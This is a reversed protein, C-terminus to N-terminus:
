EVESQSNIFKRIDIIKGTNIGGDLLVGYEYGFVSNGKYGLLGKMFPKALVEEISNGHITSIIKVGCNMANEIAKYDKYSIEDCILINPSMVKIAIEMAIKKPYLSFIDSSAGLDNQAIGELTASLENREDIVSVVYKEALKRALDRLITTKGSSPKGIILLSHLNDKFIENFIEYSSNIIERAVRFNLASINKVTTIFDENSSNRNTVATGCIGVRNGGDITIFGEKIEREFSHISYNCIKSFIYEMETRNTKYCNATEKSIVGNKGLYYVEGKKVVSIPKEIRLRIEDIKELYFEDNILFLESIEKPFYNIIRHVNKSM